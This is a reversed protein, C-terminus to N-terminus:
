TMAAVMAIAIILIAILSKTSLKLADIQNILIGLSEIVKVSRAEDYVVVKLDNAVCQLSVKEKPM